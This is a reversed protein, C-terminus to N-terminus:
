NLIQIFRQNLKTKNNIFDPYGVKETIKSLKKKAETRSQDDIWELKNLSENFMQRINTILENAQQRDKEGFVAKIYLAGLGYGFAADTEKVCYEWRDPLSEMGYLEKFLPLTLKEFATTLHSSLDFVLSFLLHDILIHSKNPDLLYKKIITSVNSMLDYSLVIIQDTETLNLPNSSNINLMENLFPYIDLGISQYQEQLQKLTMLYYTENPKQLVEM